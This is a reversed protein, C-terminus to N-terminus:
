IFHKLLIGTVIGLTNWIIDSYTGIVWQHKYHSYGSINRNEGIDINNNKMYRGSISEFLEWFVGIVFLTIYCDYRYALIAYLLFHSIAWGSLHPETPIDDPLIGNDPMLDLKCLSVNMLESGGSKYYLTHLTYMFLIVIIILYDRILKKNFM